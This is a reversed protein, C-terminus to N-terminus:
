QGDSGAGKDGGGGGGEGGGGDGEEPPVPIADTPIGGTPPVGTPATGPATAGPVTLGSLELEADSRRQDLLTTAETWLSSAQDRHASAIGLAQTQTDADGATAALSYTAAASSYTEISHLFLSHAAQVSPDPVIGVFTGQIEQLDKTWAEADKELAEAQKDDELAAPAAMMEEVPIRLTQLVNRVRDTYNTLAEQKKELAQQDERNSQVVWVTIGIAIIALTGLIAIAIPTRYWPVTRRPQVATRPPAAPRRRAQSGRKQSKKKGKIAM